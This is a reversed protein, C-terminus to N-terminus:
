ISGVNFDEKERILTLVHRENQITIPKSEVCAEINYKGFPISENKLIYRDENWALYISSDEIASKHKPIFIDNFNGYQWVVRLMARPLYTSELGEFVLQKSSIQKKLECPKNRMCWLILVGRGNFVDVLRCLAAMLSVDFVTALIEASHSSLGIKYAMKRYSDEPMLLFAAGKQCIREKGDKSFISRTEGNLLTVDQIENFLIEMLEHAISFKQRSENSESNIIIQPVGNRQVFLGDQQPLPISQPFPLGFHQMIKNIDIPPNSSVGAEGRLFESYAIVDNLDQIKHNQLFLSAPNIFNTM